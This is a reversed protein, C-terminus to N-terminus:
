ILRIVISETTGLKTVRSMSPKIVGRAVECPFGGTLPITGGEEVEITSIARAATLTAFLILPETFTSRALCTFGGNLVRFSNGIAHMKIGTINPLTGIFSQYTIHWPLTEQLATASGGTCAGAVVIARTTQGFLMNTVKRITSSHFSGEITVPCKTVAAIFTNEFELHEWVVRFTSSNSSLRNASAATVSVLLALATMAAAIACKVSTHM